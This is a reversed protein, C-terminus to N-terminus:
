LADELVNILPLDTEKRMAAKFAQSDFRWGAPSFPNLVVAVLNLASLALLPRNLALLRLLAEGDAILKAADRVILGCAHEKRSLVFAQAFANGLAGPVYLFDADKQLSAIAEKEHGILTDFPLSHFVMDKDLTGPRQIDELFAFAEPAQKLTFRRIAAGAERAVKAMDPSLHAGVIYVMAQCAGAHTLRGFAGDVFVQRAGLSHLRSVVCQLEAATSPGGVLANCAEEARVILVEGLGTHMGTRELVTFALPSAELCARGSAVLMGQEIRIRPKPLSSVLDLEEGDLGISTLGLPRKDTAEMFAKLATTKGANKVNGVLSISDYPALLRSM